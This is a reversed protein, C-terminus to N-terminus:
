MKVDYKNLLLFMFVFSLLVCCSDCTLAQNFHSYYCHLSSWCLHSKRESGRPWWPLALRYSKGGQPKRDTTRECNYSCGKLINAVPGWLIWDTRLLNWNTTVCSGVNILTIGQIHKGTKRCKTLMRTEKGVGTQIREDFLGCRKFYWPM